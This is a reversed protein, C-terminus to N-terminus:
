DDTFPYSALVTYRVGGSHLESQYLEINRFPIKGFATEAEEALLAFVGEPLPAQLRSLTVHPHYPRKEPVFGLTVLNEDLARALRILAEPERVGAWLISPRQINPFAGLGHLRLEGAPTKGAASELVSSLSPVKDAPTEGLFKVTIHLNEEKELPGVSRRSLNRLLERVPTTVPVKIAIFTRISDQNRAQSM